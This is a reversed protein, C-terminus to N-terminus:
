EARGRWDPRRKLDGAVDKGTGIEALMKDLRAAASKLAQRDADATAKLMEELRSAASKLRQLEEGTIEKKSVQETARILSAIRDRVDQERGENDGNTM